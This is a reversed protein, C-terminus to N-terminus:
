RRAWYGPKRKAHAVAVVVITDGDVRYFCVYPFSAVSCRRHPHDARWRPFAEPTDHIRDLAADFALLL